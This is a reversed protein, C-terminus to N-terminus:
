NLGAGGPAWVYDGDQNLDYREGNMYVCAVAYSCLTPHKDYPGGKLIIKYLKLGGRTASNGFETGNFKM